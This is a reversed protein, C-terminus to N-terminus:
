NRPNLSNTVYQSLDLIKIEPEIKNSYPINGDYELFCISDQTEVMRGEFFFNIRPYILHIKPPKIGQFYKLSLTKIPAVFITTEGKSWEFCAKDLFNFFFPRSFPPFCYKAGKFQGWSEDLANFGEDFLPSGKILANYGDCAIDTTINFRKQVYNFLWKPTEHDDAKNPEYGNNVQRDKYSGNNFHGPSMPSDKRSYDSSGNSSRYFNEM